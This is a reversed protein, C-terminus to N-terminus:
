SKTTPTTHMHFTHMCSGLSFNIAMFIINHISMFRMKHMISPWFNSNETSNKQKKKKNKVKQKINIAEHCTQGSNVGRGRRQAACELILEISLCQRKM